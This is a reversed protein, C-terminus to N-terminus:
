FLMMPAGFGGFGGGMRPQQQQVVRRPRHQPMGWGGMPDSAFMPQRRPQRQRQDHHAAHQQHQRPMRRGLLRAEKREEEEDYEEKGEDESQEEDEEATLDVAAEPETAMAMEAPDEQEDVDQLESEVEALEAEMQALEDEEDEEESEEDEEEHGEDEEESGEAEEPQESEGGQLDQASAEAEEPLPLSDAVEAFNQESCLTEILRNNESAGRM